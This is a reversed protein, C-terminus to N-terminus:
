SSGSLALCLYYVGGVAILASGAQQFAMSLRYRKPETNQSKRAARLIAFLPLVIMQHGAEVGISFAALALTLTTGPMEHMADLLGGAFGLGHFLGFFFAAALRSWGASRHPWFVNQVAVFVISASILPEVIRSPLHVLNLAALSLTVTHALTFATVVKVLDWLSVAALVLASIFLLHDYGTLIHHVGHCFYSEVVSLNGTQELWGRLGSPAATGPVAPAADRGSTFQMQYVSQDYNREQSTIRINPDSPLLANVLYAAIASEHHNEFILKRLSSSGAPLKAEFQLATEGVGAKMEDIGPFSFSVLELQLPAGDLSLALDDRVREAYARQESESIEGDGNVGIDAIVKAAVSIGPTLRIQLTLRDKQISIKTAQLYEDLRHAWAPTAFWAILAALLLLKAKM